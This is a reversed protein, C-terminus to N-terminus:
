IREEKVADIDRWESKAKKIKRNAAGMRQQASTWEMRRAEAAGGLRSKAAQGHVPILRRLLLLLLLLRRMWLLLVTTGVGSRNRVRRACASAGHLRVCVARLLLLLLLRRGHPLLLLLWV